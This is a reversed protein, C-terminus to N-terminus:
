ARCPIGLDNPMTMNRAKSVVSIVAGRSIKFKMPKSYWVSTANIASVNSGTEVCGSVIFGIFEETQVAIVGVCVNLVAGSNSTRM